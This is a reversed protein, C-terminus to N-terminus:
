CRHSFFGGRVIESIRDCFKTHVNLISSAIWGLSRAETNCVEFFMSLIFNAVGLLTHIHPYALISILSHALNSIEVWLGSFVLRGVDMAFIGSLLYKKIECFEGISTGQLCEQLMTCFNAVGCLMNEIDETCFSPSTDLM